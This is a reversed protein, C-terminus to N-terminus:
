ALQLRLFLDLSSRGHGQRLLPQRPRRGLRRTNQPQRRWRDVEARCRQPVEGQGDQWHGPHRNRSRQVAAFFAAFEWFQNKTWKAFPHAHCQACELKVGLFVRATAGALNEAKNENAFYFAIPTSQQGRMAGRFEIDVDILAQNSSGTSTIIEHAIKDFGVNAELRGRLYAEFSPLLQQAQLNNGTSPIMHTRFVASWHRAFYNFKPEQTEQRMDLLKDIWDYRIDFREEASLPHIWGWGSQNMNDIFDRSDLMTPIKGVLDLSLRRYLEDDSALPAAKIGAEAWPKAIMVDIRKALAKVAARQDVPRQDIPKKADGQALALGPVLALVASLFPSGRRMRM